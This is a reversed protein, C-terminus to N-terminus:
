RASSRLRHCSATGSDLITGSTNVFKWNYSTEHLRIELRAAGAASTFGVALLGVV